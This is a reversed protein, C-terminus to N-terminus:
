WPSGIMTFGAWYYPHSLNQNGLSALEPPLPVGEPQSDLGRVEGDEIRVTGKIMAIQANQLAEAKIPASKLNQYFAAMLALTGRDSVYWLSALASKVGSAVALGAFGLEANEDGLATRCASLVLLEVQPKNWGMERLQNLKLQSNWLQIFSNNPKGPKFEAHTALHIIGFPDSSRQSKLNALTFGENLFSKGQWLEKAITSLEIPVAPLPSLESFESAGMALVQSNRINRYNTDVLNVSPILSISYKEVLFKKGDHLAAIPIARLGSDLSFALTEIGQSQLEAELPAILWQYLKQASNLYSTTNIENPDTVKSRFDAVVKLLTDRDAEPISRHIPKGFPMVLVLELQEPQIFVYLIAPKKGTTQAIQKLINQIHPLSLSNPNNVPLNEGFYNEYEQQRLQEIQPVFVDFQGRQLATIINERLIPIKDVSSNAIASNNNPDILPPTQLETSIRTRDSSSLKTEPTPTQPTPTQSTPTQPTPTQPNPTEPTPTQPTPTQPTPTQPTPTQPTPTQPTPTEPNPTEPTPTEPTPTQPTPTQPTPTQPTPTEPTPTQPTPTQPTPTEPNPTQPTPTEPNPTQPTPTEPNPTQPTPTQPTPTEPNPTEPNPTEPTPTEPTPIQPTPTESSGQTIVQTRGQTFPGLYSGSRVTEGSGSTINGVTGNNTADGAVNFPTNSGGGHRIVIAGGGTGGATSISANVGNRDIFTDKARFFRQTSIDITGGIGQSGGQANIYEIQIDGQPDLTVNGAKGISASSNIQRATIQIPSILSISGGLTNGSSNLNGSAIFGAKSNLTINRGAFTDSKAIIDASIINGNANLQVNGANGNSLSSNLNGVTITGNNSTLNINGGSTMINSTAINGAALLEIASGNTTIDSTATITGTGTPSQITVPANFTVKDGINIAGSSDSRGIIISTFGSQLASIESATLNLANTDNASAIAINQEPTAPQLVLKNNGTVTGTFDIEGATLTLPYDGAALTSGFSIKATGLNFNINGNINVPGNFKIDRNATTIDGAILVGGTGIQNFDADLNLDAEPGINLTGSNNIIVAGKNTTTLPSNITFNNGTLNIGNLTDTNITGNFTTTGIGANQTISAAAIAGTQVNNASNITLNGLRTNSGINGNFIINGTGVDLTFNGNGETTGNITIDGGATSGTSLTVNNAISTNGNITINQENTIIDANLSATGILAISANETGIIPANVAILGNPSQITVPNKFAISNNFTIVGSGDNRGIAISTFSNEWRSIESTTLDLINNSGSDADAIQINQSPTLPQLTLNGTGTLNGGFDIEDGILTLNGTQGNINGSLNAGIAFQFTDDLKGGVINQFDRFNLNGNFNGVDIGTINWINNNDTSVLTSPAKTTGVLNEISVGGIAGLNITVPTTFDSYNLTDSGLNGDITGSFKVGDNFLFIDNATGGILNEINNFTFGNPYGSLSGSNASTINWTTDKNSGLLTAGGAINAPANFTATDYLTITGTSNALGITIESIGPQLFNLETSTLDLTDTSDSDKGGLAIAQSTTFPEITVKGQTSVNGTLNIEDSKLSVNATGIAGNANIIATTISTPATLAIAGANGTTSSSDLNGVNITSTNSKFTINGGTGTGKVSSSVNGVTINGAANLAIAGGNGTATSDHNATSADIANLATDTIEINGTTSTIQIDGAKEFTTNIASAVIQKTTINGLASLTINGGNGANAAAFIGNTAISSNSSTVNINGANGASFVQAELAGTTIQHFATLQINGANSFGGNANIAGSNIAGKQSSITINGGAANAGTDVGSTLNATQINGNANLAIAGANGGSSSSDLNGVNITGTNSNLIIDGGTGTGKVNAAINASVNINGKAQLNIAGANGTATSDNNTTSSDIVNPTVDTIQIDGTTSTIQINGANEGPSNIASAVIQKTTINGLASLNIHGGNGANASAFIGNTALEGNSSTVIINGANGVSIVQAKIDGTTINDFATLKINGANAFGGNANILGSNIAGNQSYITINGGAANAGTDVGSTLNATQINGNATLAIAGANGASSSSDLNGVNITSSNSNFTIDGGTGTGK